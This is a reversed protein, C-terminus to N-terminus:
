MLMATKLPSPVLDLNPPDDDSGARKRRAQRM